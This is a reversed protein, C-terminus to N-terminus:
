SFEDRYEKRALMLNVKILVWAFVLLITEYSIQRFLHFYYGKKVYEDHAGPRTGLSIMSYLVFIVMLVALLVTTTHFLILGNMRLRLLGVGSYVVLAAYLVVMVSIIMVRDVYQFMGGSEVAKERVLLAELLYNSFVLYAELGFLIVTTWATAKINSIRDVRDPHM